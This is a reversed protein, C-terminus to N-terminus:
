KRREISSKPYWDGNKRVWLPFVCDPRWVEGFKERLKSSEINKQRRKGKCGIGESPFLFTDLSSMVKAKVGVVVGLVSKHEEEEEKLFELREKGRGVKGTWGM